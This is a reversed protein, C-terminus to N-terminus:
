ESLGNEDGLYATVVAPDARVVDPPGDAIVQGFNLVVVQDSIRMILDMDHEIVLLTLGSARLKQLFHALQATEAANMGAAPEDLLLLRPELALARAIEVRRQEGYALAGAESDALDAMGLQELLAQAQARSQREIQSRGPLLWSLGERQHLHRGLVVNELVSLEEFLRINQFTRGVGLAAVQHPACHNLSQGALAVAGSSAALQGGIINLLTTKGAGNPGILGAIQGVGVEFSVENLALLGGFRRTIQKVSLLNVSGIASLGSM